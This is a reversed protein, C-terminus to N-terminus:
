TWYSPLPKFLHPGSVQFTQLKNLSQITTNSFWVKRKIKVNNRPQFIHIRKTLKPRRFACFNRNWVYVTCIGLIKTLFKKKLFINQHSMKSGALYYQKFHCMRIKFHMVCSLECIVEFNTKLIKIEEEISVFILLRKLAVM